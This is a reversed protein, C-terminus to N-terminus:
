AGSGSGEREEKLGLDSLLRGEVGAPPLTSPLKIAWKPDGTRFEWEDKGIESVTCVGVRM